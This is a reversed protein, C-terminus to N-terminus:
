SMKLLLAFVFGLLLLLFPVLIQPLPSQLAGGTPILTPLSLSQYASQVQVLFDHPIYNTIRM